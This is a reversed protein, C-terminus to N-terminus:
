VESTVHSGYEVGFILHHGTCPVSEMSCSGFGFTKWCVLQVSPCCADSLDRLSQVIREHEEAITALDDVWKFADCVIYRVQRVISRLDVDTLVRTRFDQLTEDFILVRESPVLLWGAEATDTPRPSM